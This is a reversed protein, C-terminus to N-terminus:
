GNCVKGGQGEQLALLDALLNSAALAEQKERAEKAYSGVHATLIVNDLNTLAGSYPEDEFVDLAACSLQGGKLALALADEDVLGGRATNILIAGRKMKALSAENIIHHNDKDHPMHLSVIDASALLEDLGVLRDDGSVFSDYAVIKAGFGSVYQAVKKGIRGLGVIGIVREGLLGGMPRLWQGNRIARDQLSISRLADLMLGITLEAVADTPADPTNSLAIGCSKVAEIDVNDMGVGCRAIARLGKAKNIVASTLPEVGAIMGVIDYTLLAGVEDETLRRKYPNLIIEYGADQLAKVEGTDLNFSSTTILIKQM